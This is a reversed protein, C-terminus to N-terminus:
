IVNIKINYALDEFSINGHETLDVSGTDEWLYSQVHDFVPISLTGNISDIFVSDNLSPSILDRIPWKVNKM